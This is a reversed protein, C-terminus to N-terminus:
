TLLLAKKQIVPCNGKGGGGGGKQLKAKAVSGEVQRKRWRLPEKGQWVGISSKGLLLFEGTNPRTVLVDEGGQDRGNKV